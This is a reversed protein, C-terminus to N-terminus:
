NSLASVLPSSYQKSILVVRLHTMYYALRTGRLALISVLRAGFERTLIDKIYSSKIGSTSFGYQSIISKYDQLLSQVSRLEHEEFIVIRIHDFFVTQTERFTVNHMRPLKDDESM